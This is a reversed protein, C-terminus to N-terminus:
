RTKIFDFKAPAMTDSVIVNGDHLNIHCTMDDTIRLSISTNESKSLYSDLDKWVFVYGIKRDEESEIAVKIDYSGAEFEEGVIYYGPNVRFSQFGISSEESHAVALFFLTILLFCTLEKKM